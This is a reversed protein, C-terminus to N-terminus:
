WLDVHRNFVFDWILLPLIMPIAGWVASWFYTMHKYYPRLSPYINLTRFVFDLVIGYVVMRAYTWKLGFLAYFAYFTTLMGAAITVSEWVGHQAFYPLLGWGTKGGMHLYKTSFQLILDGSGGIAGALLPLYCSQM